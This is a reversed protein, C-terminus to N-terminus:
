EEGTARACFNRAALREHPHITRNYRLWHRPWSIAEEAWQVALEYDVGEDGWGGDWDSVYNVVGDRTCALCDHWTYIRGDYVNTQFSYREGPKILANCMGCHYSKRAKRTGESLTTVM